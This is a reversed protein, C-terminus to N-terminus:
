GFIGTKKDRKKNQTKFEDTIQWTTSGSLRWNAWDDIQGTLM